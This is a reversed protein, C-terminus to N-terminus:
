CLRAEIRSRGDRAVGSPHCRRGRVDGREGLLDAPVAALREGDVLIGDAAVPVDERQQRDVLDLRRGVLAIERARVHLAQLLHHLPEVAEDVRDDGDRRAGADVPRGVAVM